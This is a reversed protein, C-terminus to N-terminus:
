AHGVTRNALERLWRSVKGGPAVKKWAAKEEPTCRINQTTTKTAM